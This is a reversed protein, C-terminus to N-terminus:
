IEFFPQFLEILAQLTDRNAVNGSLIEIRIDLFVEVGFDEEPLHKRFPIDIFLPHKFGDIRFLTYTYAPELLTPAMTAM